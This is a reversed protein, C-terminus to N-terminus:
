FLEEVSPGTADGSARSAWDGGGLRRSMEEQAEGALAIGRWLRGQWTRENICGREQLQAAMSQASWPKEGTDFCWKEYAARLDKTAITLTPELMCCDELFRGIHDQDSRYSATAALVAAPAALGGAIWDRCGQLAWQLIGPAEELLKAVLEADKDADDVTALFPILRIRRWIAHDTGRIVPRHNAAMWLKHSPRFEFNDQRMRRATLMDGGTLRKVLAEDLRRGEDIEQVVVMRRGHLDAVGTSHREHGVALLLDAEASFAYDGLLHGVVSLFTSKGNSGAGHLFFLVQEAVSGSLTYGIARRLFEVLEADGRMAWDLFRLWQPCVADDVVAAPALKTCLAARHQPTAVGTRLDVTGTSTNLAWPDADLQDVLVPIGPETSALQVMGSLVAPSQSRMWWGFLAKRADSDPCAPLGAPFGDVIAKSRRHVEGTYDEIWREGQWTIWAGWQPVHHLDEGHEAVLRRANGLVTYPQFQPPSNNVNENVPARPPSGSPRVENRILRLPNDPLM